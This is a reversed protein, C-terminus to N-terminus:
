SRFVKESSSHRTAGELITQDLVEVFKRFRRHLFVGRLLELSPVGLEDLILLVLILCMRDTEEVMRDDFLIKPKLDEPYHTLYNRTQVLTELSKKELGFADKGFALELRTHLNKLRNRLSPENAYKIAAKMKDRLQSSTGKPIANTMADIVSKFEEAGVLPEPHVMRDFAEFAQMSLLFGAGATKHHQNIILLILDTVERLRARADRWASLIDPSVKELRRLAMLPQAPRSSAQAGEEFFLASVWETQKGFGDLKKTAGYFVVDLLPTPAAFMFSAFDKVGEIESFHWTLTRATKSVLNLRTSATIEAKLGNISAGYGGVFRAEYGGSTCQLKAQQGGKVSVVLRGNKQRKQEIYSAFNWDDLHAFRLSSKKFTLNENPFFNGVLAIECVLDVVDFGGSRLTSGLRVCNLLTIKEGSTSVGTVTRPREDEALSWLSGYMELRCGEQPDYTFVGSVRNTDNGVFWYGNCQFRTTLDRINTM